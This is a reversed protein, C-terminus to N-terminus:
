RKLEAKEAVKQADRAKATGEKVATGIAATLLQISRIADDNGPIPYDVLDPDANTDTIAIVPIGLRHAERM